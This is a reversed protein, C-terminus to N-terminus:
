IYYLDPREIDTEYDIFNNVYESINKEKCM